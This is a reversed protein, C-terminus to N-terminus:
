RGQAAYIKDDNKEKKREENEHGEKKEADRNAIKNNLLNHLVVVSHILRSLHHPLPHHWVASGTREDG